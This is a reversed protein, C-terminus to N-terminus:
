HKVSSCEVRGGEDHVHGVNEESKCNNRPKRKDKM